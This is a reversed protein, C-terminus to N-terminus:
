IRSLLKNMLDWTKLVSGDDFSCVSFEDGSKNKWVKEVGKLEKCFKFSPNNVSFELKFKQKNKFNKQIAKFAKSGKKIEFFHVDSTSSFLHEKKSQDILVLGDAFCNSSLFIFLILLKSM